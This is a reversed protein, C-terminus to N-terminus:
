RKKWLSAGDGGKVAQTYLILPYELPMSKPDGDANRLINGSAYRVPIQIQFDQYEAGPM